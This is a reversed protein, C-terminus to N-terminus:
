KSDCAIIQNYLFMILALVFVSFLLHPWKYWNIFLSEIVSYFSSDFIIKAMATLCFFFALSIIAKISSINSIYGLNLM